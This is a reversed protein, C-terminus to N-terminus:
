TNNDDGKPVTMVTADKRTVTLESQTKQCTLPM